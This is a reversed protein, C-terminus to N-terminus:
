EIEIESEIYGNEFDIVDIPELYRSGTTKLVDVNIENGSNREGTLSPHQKIFSSTQPEIKSSVKTVQAVVPDEIGNTVDSSVVGSPHGSSNLLSALPSEATSIIEDSVKIKSGQPTRFLDELSFSSELADASSASCVPELSIDLM